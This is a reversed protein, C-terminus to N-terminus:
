SLGPINLGGTISGMKSSALQQAKELAGNVASIILDQLMEVDEPDIGISAPDVGADELVQAFEGMDEAHAATDAIEEVSQADAMGVAASSAADGILYNLGISVPPAGTNVSVEDSYVESIQPGVLTYWTDM